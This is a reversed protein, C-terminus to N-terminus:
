KKAPFRLRISVPRHDSLRIHDELPYRKEFYDIRFKEDWNDILSRSILIHDLFKTDWNLFNSKLKAYYKPEGKEANWQYTFYPFEKTGSAFLLLARPDSFDAANRILRNRVDDDISHKDLLEIIVSSSENIDGMVIIDSDKLSGQVEPKMIWNRLLDEWEGRRRIDNSDLGGDIGSTQAKLHLVIVVFDNAPASRVRFRAALPTRPFRLEEKSSTPKGFGYGRKLQTLETVKGLLELTKTNWILATHIGGITSKGMISSKGAKGKWIEPPDKIENRKNELRNLESLLQDMSSPASASRPPIMEQIGIVDTGAGLITQAIMELHRHDRKPFTHDDPGVADFIEINWSTIGIYVPSLAPSTSDKAILVIPAVFLIIFTILLIKM